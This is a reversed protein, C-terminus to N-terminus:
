VRMQMRILGESKIVIQHHLLGTEECCLWLRGTLKLKGVVATELGCSGFALAAYFIQLGDFCSEGCRLTITHECAQFLKRLIRRELVQGEFVVVSAVVVNETAHEGHVLWYALEFDNQARM